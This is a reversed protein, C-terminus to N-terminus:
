GLRSRLWDTIERNVPDVVDATEQERKKLYKAWYPCVPVVRKGGARVDALAETVLISALGQGAFRDDVETHFFVRQEGRDRYETFGALEGDVTIVYRQEDPRHEVAPTTDSTM